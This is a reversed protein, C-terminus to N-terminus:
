EILDFGQPKGAEGVADDTGVAVAVDRLDIAGDVDAADGDMGAVKEVAVGVADSGDGVLDGGGHSM